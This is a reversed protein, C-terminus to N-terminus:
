LTEKFDAIAQRAEKVLDNVCDRDSQTTPGGTSLWHEMSECIDKLKEARTKWVALEAAQDAFQKEHTAWVGKVVRAGSERAREALAAEETLRAIRAGLTTNADQAARLKESMEQLCPRLSALEAEANMCRVRLDDWTKEDAPTM